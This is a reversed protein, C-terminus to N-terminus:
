IESRRKMKLKYKVYKGKKLDKKINAGEFDDPSNKSPIWLDKDFTRELFVARRKSKPSLVREDLPKINGIIAPSFSNPNWKSSNIAMYKEGSISGRVTSAAKRKRDTITLELEPLLKVRKVAPSVSSDRSEMM